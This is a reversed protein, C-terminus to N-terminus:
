LRENQADKMRSYQFDKSVYAKILFRILEANSRIGSKEKAEEFSDIEVGQLRVNLFMEKESM